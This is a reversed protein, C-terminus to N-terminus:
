TAARLACAEGLTRKRPQVLASSKKLATSMMTSGEIQGSGLRADRELREHV